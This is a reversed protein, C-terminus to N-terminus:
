YYAKKSKMYVEEPHLLDHLYEEKTQTLTDEKEKGDFKQEQIWEERDQKAREVNYLRGNNYGDIREKLFQTM